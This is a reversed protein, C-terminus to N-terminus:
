PRRPSVRRPAPRTLPPLGEAKAAAHLVADVAPSGWATLENPRWRRGARDEYWLQTKTVYVPAPDSSAPAVPQPPTFAWPTPAPSLSPAAPAAPTTLRRVFRGPGSRALQSRLTEERYQEGQETLCRAALLAEFVSEGPQTRTRRYLAELEAHRTKAARRAVTAAQRAATAREGAQRRGEAERQRQQARAQDAGERRVEVANAVGRLPVLVTDEVPIALEALAPRDRAESVKRRLPRAAGRARAIADREAPTLDRGRPATSVAHDIRALLAAHEAALAVTEALDARDTAAQRAERAVQRAHAVALIDALPAADPGTVAKVRATWDPEVLLPRTDTVLLYDAAVSVMAGGLDTPMSAWRGLALRVIAELDSLEWGRDTLCHRLLRRLDERAGSPLDPAPPALDPSVEPLAVRALRAAVVDLDRTVERLPETDLVVARRVYPDPLLRAADREANLTLITTAHVELVADESRYRSTGALYAFAARQLKPAAKDFEDLIVLPAALLPSPVSTWTDAGTQIRRALLSGPTEMQLQRVADLPDLGFRRAALSGVLTKGSKTPGVAVFGPWNGPYVDRLARRVIVADEILRLMARHEAPLDDLVAISAAAEPVTPVLAARHGAGTLTWVGRTRQRVLGAEGLRDLARRMSRVPMGVAAALAESRTEGTALADLILADRADIVM